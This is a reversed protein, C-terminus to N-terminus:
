FGYECRWKEFLILGFLRESNNRGAVHGELLALSAKPDFLTSSELTARAMDHWPGSRLWQPLPISFGQKRNANFSEPLVRDCLRKLLIKRESSTVKLHAPVKGFAFEIIRHDLLPARMELSTLMSARDVKVLIDEPMYNQFDM